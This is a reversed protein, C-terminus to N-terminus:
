VKGFGSGGPSHEWTWPPGGLERSQGWIDVTRCWTKRGQADVSVSPSLGV